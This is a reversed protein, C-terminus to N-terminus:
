NFSDIATSIVIKLDDAVNCFHIKKFVNNIGHRNVIPILIEKAATTTMLNIKSFDLSVAANTNLLKLIDNSIRKATECSTINNGFQSMDYEMDILEM